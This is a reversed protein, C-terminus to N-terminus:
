TDCVMGGEEEEDDIGDDDVELFRPLLLLL